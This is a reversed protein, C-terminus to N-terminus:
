ARALELCGHRLCGEYAVKFVSCLKIGFGLRQLLQRLGFLVVYCRQTFVTRNARGVKTQSVRCFPVVFSPGISMLDCAFRLGLGELLAGQLCFGMEFATM